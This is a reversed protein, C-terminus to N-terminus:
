EDGIKQCWVVSKVISYEHSVSVQVLRTGDEEPAIEVEIIRYGDEVLRIIRSRREILFLDWSDLPPSVPVTLVLAVSVVGQLFNRRDSV